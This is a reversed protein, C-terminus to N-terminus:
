GSSSPPPVEGPTALQGGGVRSEIEDFGAFVNKSLRRFEVKTIARRSSSLDLYCSRSDAACHFRTAYALIEDSAFNVVVDHIGLSRGLVIM